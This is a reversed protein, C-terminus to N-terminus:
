ESVSPEHNSKDAAIMNVMQYDKYAPQLSFAEGHRSLFKSLVDMGAKGPLAKKEKYGIELYYSYTPVETDSGEKGEGSVTNVDEIGSEEELPSLRLMGILMKQISYTEPDYYIRYGQIQPDQIHELTLMKVGDAITVVASAKQKEILDRFDAIDFLKSVSRTQGPSSLSILKGRHDVALLYQAQRVFEMSDLSYYFNGNAYQYQFPYEEMVKEEEQNDDILKVMGKYLFNEEKYYANVLKEMEKWPDDGTPIGQEEKAEEEKVVAKEEQHNANRNDFHSGAQRAYVWVLGGALIVVAVIRIFVQSPKM